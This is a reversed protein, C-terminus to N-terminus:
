YAKCLKNMDAYFELLDSIHIENIVPHSPILKYKTMFERLM